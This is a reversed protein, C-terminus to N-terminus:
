TGPEPCEPRPCEPMTGVATLLLDCRPGRKWGARSVCGAAGISQVGGMPASTKGGKLWAGTAMSTSTGGGGDGGTDSLGISHAEGDPRTPRLDERRRTPSVAGVLSMSQSSGAAVVSLADWGGLRSVPGPVPCGCAELRCGSSSDPTGLVRISSHRAQNALWM